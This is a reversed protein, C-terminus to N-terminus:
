RSAVRLTGLVQNAVAFARRSAPRTGFYARLEFYRGGTGFSLWAFALRAPMGEVPETSFDRRRLQLPRGHLIRYHVRLPHPYENLAFLIGRKGMRHAALTAADDEAEAPPLRFNGSQLDADRRASPLLPFGLEAPFDDLGRAASTYRDGPAIPPVSQGAVVALAVIPAIRVARVFTM